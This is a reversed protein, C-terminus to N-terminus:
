QSNIYKRYKIDMTKIFLDELGDQKEMGEPVTVARPFPVWTEPNWNDERALVSQAQKLFWPSKDLTRLFVDVCIM